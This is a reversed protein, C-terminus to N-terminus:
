KRKAIEYEIRDLCTSILEDLAKEMSYVISMTAYFETAYIAQTTDFPYSGEEIGYEFEHEKLPEKFVYLRLIYRNNDYNMPHNWRTDKKIEFGHGNYIGVVKTEMGLIKM